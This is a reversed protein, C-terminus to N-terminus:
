IENRFHMNQPGSPIIITKQTVHNIRNQGQQKSVYNINAKPSLSLRLKNPQTHTSHFDSARGVNRNGKRGVKINRKRFHMNQAGSPILSTKQTVHNIRNQGQQKSVYNINAKPSVHFVYNIPNHSQQTSTRRGGSM